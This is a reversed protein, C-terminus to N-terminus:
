FKRNHNITAEVIDRNNYLILLIKAAMREIYDHADKRVLFKDMKTITLDKLEGNIKGSKKYKFYINELFDCARYYEEEIAEDKDYLCWKTGDFRKAFKSKINSIYINHFEPKKKNFHIFTILDPISMVGMFLFHLIEKESLYSELNEKGNEVINITFNTDHSDINNVTNNSGSIKNVINNDKEISVNMTNNIMKLKCIKEHRRASSTQSFKKNCYLCIDKKNYGTHVNSNIHRLYNYKKDFYKDCIKCHYQEM